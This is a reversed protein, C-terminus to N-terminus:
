WGGRRPRDRRQVPRGLRAPLAVGGLLFGGDATRGLCYARDLGRGGYERLWRTEGRSDTVLLPTDLGEGSESLQGTVSYGGDVGGAVARSWLAPSGNPTHTSPGGDAGYERTWQVPPAGGTASQSVPTPPDADSSGDPSSRPARSARCGALALVAAGSSLVQRRHM